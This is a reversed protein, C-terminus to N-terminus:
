PRLMTELDRWFNPYSKAVVEPADVSLGPRRLGVLAMAMAIRHDGHSSCVVPEGAGSGEAWRGEIVLGDPLEEVTAGARTLEETMAALRDSEKLRLHPVNRIRTTGRAFPALAALTPVQDPMAELDVDVARLAGPPPGSVRLREEGGVGARWSIEAGMAELVELFGRDGQRSAERVGEILIEGGTLAAAAAPYAVASYDAEVRVESPAPEGSASGSGEVRFLDGERTARVGMEGLADLTLDVYPLSTLAVTEIELPEPTELGAMLLASLFQSSSGADLRTRGGRLSGGTVVLPAFGEARPCEIQAGAQRLADILPGVPRERLREIGDLRWRGPLVTLAATLFRLMTGGAGCFIDRTESGVGRSKSPPDVAVFGGRADLSIQFGATELGALFYRIDESILPRRIVLPRQAILALNFYRQTISKSGPPEVRGTIRRDSPIPGYVAPYSPAEPGRATISKSPSDM